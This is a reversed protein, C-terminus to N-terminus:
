ARRGDPQATLIGRLVTDAHQAALAALDPAHPSSAGFVEHFLLASIMPGIISFAHLQPDGPRVEGRAQAEAVATTLLTVLKAVVEDHWIRALDPFARSDAIVMRAIAPLRKDGMRGAARALFLPILDSLSPRDGRRAEELARLNATLAGQVVARFLAEKDAFYRYLTGKAVGAQKAVDDLKAAAYGKEIFVNMAADIIEAPRAEKRRSWRPTRDTTGDSQM